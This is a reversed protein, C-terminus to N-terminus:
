GHVPYMTWGSDYKPAAYICDNEVNILNVISSRRSCYLHTEARSMVMGMWEARGFDPPELCSTLEFVTFPGNIVNFCTNIVPIQAFSACGPPGVFVGYPLAENFQQTVAVSNFAPVGLCTEFMLPLPTNYCTGSCGAGTCTVLISSVGADPHVDNAASTFNAAVPVLVTDSVPLSGAISTTDATTLPSAHAAQTFLTLALTTLAITYSM